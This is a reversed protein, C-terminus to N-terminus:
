QNITIKRKKENIQEFTVWITKEPFASPAKDAWEVIVMTDHNEWEDTVGLNKMEEEIHADLRYLDLHYLSSISGKQLKYSRMLIFTPSIIRSAVGLGEAFGQVFTTKGAGLDGVLAVVEGGKLSAAFEKGVKKTETANKTTIEM